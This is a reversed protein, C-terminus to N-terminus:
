RMKDQYYIEPKYAPPWEPENDLVSEVQELTDKSLIVDSAGVNDIVHEPKTAGVIASSVEPRRLIWALALQGTTIDLSTAIETLKRTKSLNAENLYRNMWTSTAGRSGEPKGDNYKGTLLGQALPSFVTFGMGHTKAVQMIELEIYRSLMNYPPQEVIPKHAGFEKAVANARELQAATWVSTGWHRVKGTKILDDMVMVTEKVPTTYDYRHLFYIDIYDMNLRSLTDEIANMINKRSNGWDTIDKSTPWFVKSSVVLNRRSVNEDRFFQAIVEEAKGGAYIEASDIFNVGLDLATTMCKKAMENEVSGGYTLWSGLSVESVKLGSKGVKRYRM